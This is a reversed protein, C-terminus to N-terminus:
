RMIYLKGFGHTFYKDAETERKEISQGNISTIVHYFYVGNALKDGFDDKGDWTYETINRGIHINGLESLTITKCLKGTVTIIQIRFDTPLESGTLTFVFKTSTSFPNPYNFLETITSKTIVEFTIIYENAGSENGSKDKGQVRLQYKGDVTFVPNYFIKCSNKPLQAPIFKMNEKGESTFYIRNEVDGTISKLYVSFLSSDNLALYKNEDKLQIMIEPKASVIDGDLIHVGDFTVDLMPNSKDSNVYFLKQAINNFHYEELQYYAGTTPNLPNAEVWISNLGAYGMTSFLVTDKLVDGVPHPRLKKQKITHLVNNKDQIWYKIMLSDMDYPSINEYAVSFTIQDGENVTDKYFYYGKQPNIATEPVGAHMIQWKKLQSPTYKINDENSLSLKLYPYISADVRNHLDYIDITYKPLTFLLTSDGSNKVGMVNLKISDTLTSDISNSKWHLENWQHTPGILSTSITGKYFNNIMKVYLSITDRDTAGVRYQASNIDGKKCFFLWPRDNEIRRPNGDRGPDILGDFATKTNEPWSAFNGTIFTYAFIYYGTPVADILSPINSLNTSDSPFMLVSSPDLSCILSNVQGFNGFNSPLCQVRLPDIVAIHVKPSPGCSAMQGQNSLVGSNIRFQIQLYENSEDALGVNHAILGQPTSIFEFKRALKNYEIWQYYDKKFQFFHAQSWGTKGKIYIFSSENWTTTSGSKGVRWYYVTSDELTITPTWSVVGGSQVIAPNSRQYLSSNFSDTTDIEFIYSATPAFPYGTSAKLTVTNNPYIAYQYPYVPYIDASTIMFDINAINNNESLEDISGYSNIGNVDLSVTIKNLGTGKIMNVDFKHSINKIYNCGSVITDYIDFSNDPYTRKIEVMFSQHTAMGINKIQVKVNFDNYETTINNPDFTIASPTVTLDPKTFSNIKIAPDGQLTMNLCTNIVHQDGTYQTMYKKMTQNICYGFTKGYNESAIQHYFETSFTNLYNSFGEGVSGLFGIAGHNQILVWRESMSPLYSSSTPVQHIDGVFCSNALLFPYKDQNNFNQPEEISQDFSNAAAHGFFTLLTSGNRILDNILQLQTQQIPMSSTKYFSNVNGGFLTDEIIAKYNELYLRFTTQESSDMGGGFHLVNKMWEAPSNSEYERVKSLYWSVHEPLQACIRGTPIAPIFTGPDNLGASFLGDSSPWGISPM